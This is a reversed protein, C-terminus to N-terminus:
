KPITINGIVTGNIKRLTVIDNGTRQKLFVVSTKEVFSLMCRYLPVLVNEWFFTINLTNETTKKELYTTCLTTQVVKEKTLLVEM